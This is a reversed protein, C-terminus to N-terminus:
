PASTVAVGRGGCLGVPPPPLRNAASVVAAEALWARATCPAATRRGWATRAITRSISSSSVAALVGMAASGGAVIDSHRAPQAGSRTAGLALRRATRATASCAIQHRHPAHSGVRATGRGSSTGAPAHGAHTSVGVARSLLLAAEAPTPTCRSSLNTTRRSTARQSHVVSQLISQHSTSRTTGPGHEIAQGWRSTRRRSRTPPTRLEPSLGLAAREM